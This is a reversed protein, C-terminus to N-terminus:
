GIARENSLRYAEPKYSHLWTAM